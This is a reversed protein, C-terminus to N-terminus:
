GQRSKGIIVKGWGQRRFATKRTRFTLVIIYEDKRQGGEGNM